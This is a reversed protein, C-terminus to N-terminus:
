LLECPAFPFRGYTVERKKGVICSTFHTASPNDMRGDTDTMRFVVETSCSSPLSSDPSKRQLENHWYYGYKGRLQGRVKGSKRLLLNQM